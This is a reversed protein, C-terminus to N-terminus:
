AQEDFWPSPVARDPTGCAACRPVRLVREHTLRVVGGCELAYLRGPLTPDVAAIWRLVISAALAAGFSALFAPEGARPPVREVVDFDDEFGSCAGRRLVYCSRCASHGPVFLPGVVLFRGDFPLLQLWASGVALAQRNLPELQQIEDAAPAAVVLGDTPVDADLSLTEVRGCGIRRLQTDVGAAAAGSGVVAVHANAIRRAADAENTRRTVAAAFRAATILDEEAESDPMREVLLRHAELLSLAQEIAPAVAPGLTAALEDTTRTGDLLPLLRPLLADVARGEFTVLTGGEEVLYRDGDRVLRCWPSLAPRLPRADTTAGPRV